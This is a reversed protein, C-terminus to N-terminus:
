SITGTGTQANPGGVTNVSVTGSKVFVDIANTLAEAYDTIATQQNDERNKLDNLIKVISSKLTKKDLPM